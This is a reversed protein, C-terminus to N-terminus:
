KCARKQNLSLIISHMTNAYIDWNAYEEVTERASNVLEFWKSKSDRIKITQSVLSKANDFVLINNEPKFYSCTDIDHRTAIVPLGNAMAELIKKRIGGGVFTASVLALCREYVKDLNEVFGLPVIKNKTMFFEDMGLLGCFQSQNLGTVNLSFGQFKSTKKSELWFENIFRKLNHRNQAAKPNCLYLLEQSLNNRKVSQMPPIAVGERALYAQRVVRSDLGIAYDADSLFAVADAAQWYKMESNKTMWYLPMLMCRLMSNKARLYSDVLQYEINHERLILPIEWNLEDRLQFALEAMHPHHCIICDPKENQLIKYFICFSKPNSYKYFKFPKLSLTANLLNTWSDTVEYPVPNYKVGNQALANISERSPNTCPCVYTVNCKKALAVTAGYIGEKGGDIPPWIPQPGLALVNLKNM